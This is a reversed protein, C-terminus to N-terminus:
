QSFGETQRCALFKINLERFKYRSISDTCISCSCKDINIQVIAQGTTGSVCDTHRIINFFQQFLNPFQKDRTVASASTMPAKLM